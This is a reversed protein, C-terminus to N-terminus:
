AYNKAAQRLRHCEAHILETNEVTYGGIANRRDLESYAQPMEKGCEACLGGQQGWKAYKLARRAMPKGREDYTLEKFVKRRLAFLLERDGAALTALRERIESLLENALLLEQETLNRNAM